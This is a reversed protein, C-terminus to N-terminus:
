GMDKKFIDKIEDLLDKSREAAVDPKRIKFYCTSRSIGWQRFLAASKASKGSLVQMVVELRTEPTWIRNSNKHKLVEPGSAEELRVWKRVMIRFDRQKIGSPTEPWQGSHYMEVCKQTFEYSYRM